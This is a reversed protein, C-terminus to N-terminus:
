IDGATHFNAAPLIVKGSRFVDYVFEIGIKQDVTAAKLEREDGDIVSVAVMDAWTAGRHDRRPRSVGWGGRGALDGPASRGCWGRRSPWRRREGGAARGCPKRRSGGAGTSATVARRVKDAYAAVVDKAPGDLVVRGQELWIARDCFRTLSNLDDSVFHRYSRRWRGEVRELCKEQFALDGVALVEDLLLIEAELHAAVSFALRVRMGSSYHKVRMDIFRRDIGAFEVIEELHEATERRGLGHM